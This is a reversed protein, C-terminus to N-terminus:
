PRSLPLSPRYATYSRPPPVKSMLRSRRVRPTNSTTAVPPSAASPPSSMSWAIASQASSDSPRAAKAACSLPAASSAARAALSASVSPVSVVQRATMAPETLLPFRRGDASTDM